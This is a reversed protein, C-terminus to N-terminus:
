KSAAPDHKVLIATAADRPAHAYYRRVVGCFLYFELLDYIQLATRM